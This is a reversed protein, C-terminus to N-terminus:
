KRNPLRGYVPPPPQGGLKIDLTVKDDIMADLVPINYQEIVEWWSRAKDPDGARMECYFTTRIGAPQLKEATLEGLEEAIQFFPLAAMCARGGALSLATNRAVIGATERGVGSAFKDFLRQLREPRPTWMQSAAKQWILLEANIMSYAEESTMKAPDLRYLPHLAIERLQPDPIFSQLNQPPLAPLGAWLQELAKFNFSARLKDNGAMATSTSVTQMQNQDIGVQNFYEDVLLDKGDPNLRSDYVQLITPPQKIFRGYEAVQELVPYNETNVPITMAMTNTQFSDRGLIERLLLTSPNPNGIKKQGELIQSLYFRQELNQPSFRWHEDYGVLLVNGRNVQFVSAAPFVRSFTKMVIKIALDDVDYTHLWQVVVGGSALRSRVLRFFDESFMDAMGEQWINSPEMSVVDFKEESLRLFTKGDDIVMRHKPNEWFRGNDAAFTKSAEFVEGALEATTLKDVEPFKLIEGSTIGSGLGLVFINKPTPHLLMPLHALLIQTAVDPSGRKNAADAKGNILLSRYVDEGPVFVDLVTAQVDPGQREEVVQYFSNMKVFDEYKFSQSKGFDLRSVFLQVPSWPQWFFLQLTVLGITAGLIRKRGKEELMFALFITVALYIFVIFELTRPLSLIRFLLQSTIGIGLLAGITNVGYVLAVDRGVRESSRGVIRVCLPLIMGSAVTPLLMLAFCTGFKLTQYFPWGFPTHAIIGLLRGIEFPLRGYFFLGFVMITSNITFVCTLVTPLPFRGIWRSRVLLSGLGLGFIFAAVVITFASHTAGLVIAFYRIWAIQLAMAAFGALGAAVIARRMAYPQYIRGDLAEDLRRHPSDEGGKCVVAEKSAQFWAASLVTLGLCINITGTYIMSNAMGFRYVLFFGGALIGLVAGLSNIGYLLSINRRLGEQSCTLYRTVAPLTGGMAVSPLAILLSTTLLKLTLLPSSGPEFSSGLFIYIGSVKSFLFPFLVAYFGVGVELWGYYLLGNRGRDVLRGILMAGLALGGMFVMLVVFQSMSTGGMLDALYRTWLVEYILGCGGSLFFATAVMFVTIHRSNKDM